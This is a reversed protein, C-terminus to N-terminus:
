EAGAAWTMLKEALLRNDFEDINTGPGDNWFTNRDFTAIIRGDGVEAACLASDREPDFEYGDDVSVPGKTGVSQLTALQYVEDGERRASWDPTIRIPSVGEGRYELTRPEGGTTNLYHDRSWESVHNVGGGQDTYFFLGFQELLDNRSDRGATNDLGVEEWDGGFASDSYAIVGGGGRVWGDVAAAESDSWRKQSSGLHLVDYRRLTEADLTTEADYREEISFGLAEVTSAFKSMGMRGEDSLRMQHFPDGDYGREGKLDGDADVAGYLYLARPATSGDTPTDDAITETALTETPTASRDPTPDTPESADLCGAAGAAGAALGARLLRRRGISPGNERSM